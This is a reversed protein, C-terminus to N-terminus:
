PSEPCASCSGGCDAGTEGGNTIGDECSPAQCFGKWCVGSECDKTRDV